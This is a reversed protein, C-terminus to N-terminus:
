YKSFAILHISSSYKKDCMEYCIKEYHQLEFSIKNFLTLEVLM